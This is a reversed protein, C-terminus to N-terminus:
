GTAPAAEEKEAAQEVADRVDVLKTAGLPESETRSDDVVWWAAAGLAAGVLPFVFFAWLQQLADGGAYIAMAFSRAPNVSTNDVPISALHILTLTLGVALGGAAPSFRRHTTSLVVFVLLATMAIEVAVMAGFGFKGPSLNAWGNVAFNSPSPDFTGPAGTAVLWIVAGGLAAGALQGVMYFPVAAGELKRTAWLGVTVAPNIHCGSINGIAYAMALLALGFALAVGLVGVSGAPFFRGTALVATGPGALVLVFTGIGEAVLIRTRHNM